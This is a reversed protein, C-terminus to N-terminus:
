AITKRSSLQYANFNSPNVDNPLLELKKRLETLTPPNAILHYFMVGLTRAPYEIDALVLLAGENHDM